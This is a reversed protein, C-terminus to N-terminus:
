RRRLFFFSVVLGGVFDMVLDSFSDPTAGANLEKLVMGEYYKIYLIGELIQEMVEWALGVILVIILVFIIKQYKALFQKNFKPWNIVVLAILAGGLFHLVVDYWWFLEYFKFGLGVTNLFLIGFLFLIVLRNKLVLFLDKFMNM